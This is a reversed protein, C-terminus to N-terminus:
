VHQSHLNLGMLRTPLRGPLRSLLGSRFRMSAVRAQLKLFCKLQGFLDGLCIVWRIFQGSWKELLNLTVIGRIQPRCMLFRVHSGFGRRVRGFVTLLAITDRLLMGFWPGIAVLGICASAPMGTCMVRCVDAFRGGTGISPFPGHIDDRWQFQLGIWVLVWSLGLQWLPM